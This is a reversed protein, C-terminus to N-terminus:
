KSFLAVARQATRELLKLLLSKNVETNQPLFFLTKRCQTKRPLSEWKSFHEKRQLQTNKEREREGVLFKEVTCFAREGSGTNLWAPPKTQKTPLKKMCTAHSRGVWVHQNRQEGENQVQIQMTAIPFIAHHTQTVVLLLFLSISCVYVALSVNQEPHSASWWQKNM